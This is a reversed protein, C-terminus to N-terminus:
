YRLMISRSSRHSRGARRWREPFDVTPGGCCSPKRPDGLKLYPSDPTLTDGQAPSGSRPGVVAVTRCGPVARRRRAGKSIRHPHRHSRALVM